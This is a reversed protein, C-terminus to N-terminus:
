HTHFTIKQKLTGIDIKGKELRLSNAKQIHVKNRVRGTFNGKMQKM